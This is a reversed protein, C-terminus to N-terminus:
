KNKVIYSHCYRLDYNLKYWYTTVLRVKIASKVQRYCKQADSCALNGLAEMNPVDLALQRYSVVDTNYHSAANIGYCTASINHNYIIYLLNWTQLILLYPFYYSKGYM